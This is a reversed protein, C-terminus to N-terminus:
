LAGGRGDQKAAKQKGIADAPFDVEQSPDPSTSELLTADSRRDPTRAAQRGVLCAPFFVAASLNAM